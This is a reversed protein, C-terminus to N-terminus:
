PFNATSRADSQSFAFGRAALFAPMGAAAAMRGDRGHLVPFWEGPADDGCMGGPCPSEAENQHHFALDAM